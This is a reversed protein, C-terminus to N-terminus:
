RKQIHKALDQVKKFDEPKGIDIWYGSLPFRIVNRGNSILMEMLDTADFFTDDPIMDLVERKVLYIGANAYYHFSPKERVGTIKRAGEIEFIGYPVSVSYPVAAISMDADYEKFHLYFDELDINTFLDSNMVLVTDNHWTEVFKVSGMTGLYKPERVCNVKVGGDVGGGVPEAFHEEIQEGLYNITVHINEVGNSLLNEVNYDIIPKDGVLLLPKPTTLTMPRLREGKGGAMLVADVPLYAHKNTLDLVKVVRGEVNLVPVTKIGNKKIFRQKELDLCGESLSTFMSNMVQDVRCSLSCGGLVGRRIDGDTVTGLVVESEDVVFLTLTLESSLKDLKSLADLISANNRILYKDLKNM